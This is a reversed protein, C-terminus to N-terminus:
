LIEKGDRVFSKLTWIYNDKFELGLYGYEKSWYIHRLDFPRDKMNDYYEKADIVYRGNEDKNLRNMENITLVVGPYRLKNKGLRITFHIYSGKVGAEMELFSKKEVVFLTQLRNPLLSLPDDANIYTEVNIIKITDLEGKNSEFVLRDGKKYPQWELDSKSLKYTKCSILMLVITLIIMAQKM